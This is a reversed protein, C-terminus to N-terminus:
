LKPIIEAFEFASLIRGRLELVGALPASRTWGAVPYPRQPQDGDSASVAGQVRRSAAPARTDPRHCHRWVKTWHQRLVHSCVNSWSPIREDERRHLVGVDLHMGVRDITTPVGCPLLDPTRVKTDMVKTVRAGHEDGLSARGKSLQHGPNPVRRGLGSETVLVSRSAPVSGDRIRERFHGHRM